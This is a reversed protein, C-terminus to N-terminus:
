NRGFPNWGLNVGVYGKPQLDWNMAGWVGPGVNFNGIKYSAGVGVLLGSGAAISGQLGIKEYWKPNLMDPNVASVAIDVAMNDESSTAYGRWSKDKEQTMVVSLKLPRGQNVNLLAEPPDTLTHGKVIFPGFDKIFEVKKRVVGEPTTEETQTAVVLAEYAKKWKIVLNQATLVEAKRTKIEAVLAQNQEAFELAIQLTAESKIALETYVNKQIEITVDRSAITNQLEVLEKKHANSVLTFGIAVSIALLLLVGAFIFSLKIPSM